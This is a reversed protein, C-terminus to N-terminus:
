GTQPLENRIRIDFVQLATHLSSDFDPRLQTHLRAAKARTQRLGSRVRALAVVYEIRSKTLSPVPRDCMAHWGTKTYLTELAPSPLLTDKSNEQFM